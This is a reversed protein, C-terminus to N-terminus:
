GQILFVPSRIPYPTQMNDALYLYEGPLYGMVLLAVRYIRRACDTHNFVIEGGGDFYSGNSVNTSRSITINDRKWVTNTM